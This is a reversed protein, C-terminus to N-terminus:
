NGDIIKQLEDLNSKMSGYKRIHPIMALLKIKQDLKDIVKKNALIRDDIGKIADLENDIWKQLQEIEATYEAIRKEREKNTTTRLSRITSELAVKRDRLEKLQADIDKQPLQILKSLM